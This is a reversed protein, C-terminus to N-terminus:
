LPQQVSHPNRHGAILRWRTKSKFDRGTLGSRRWRGLMRRWYREKAPDRWEPRPM